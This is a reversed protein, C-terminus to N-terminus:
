QTEVQLTEISKGQDTKTLRMTELLCLSFRIQDVLFHFNEKERGANMENIKLLNQLIKPVVRHHHKFVSIVVTLQSNLVMSAM